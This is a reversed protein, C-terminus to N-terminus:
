TEPRRGWEAWGEQCCLHGQDRAGRWPPPRSRQPPRQDEASSQDEAQHACRNASQEAGGQGPPHRTGFLRLTSLAAPSERVRNRVARLPNSLRPAPGPLRHAHSEGVRLGWTSGGVVM